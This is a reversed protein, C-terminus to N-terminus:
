INWKKKLYLEVQKVEKDNLKRNYYIFEGIYGNFGSKNQHQSLVTDFSTDGAFYSHRSGSGLSIIPKYLGIGADGHFAWGSQNKSKIETKFNGFNSISMDGSIDNSAEKVRFVFLSPNRYDDRFKTINSDDLVLDPYGPNTYTYGQHGMYNIVTYNKGEVDYPSSSYKLLNLYSVPQTYTWNYESATSGNYWKDILTTISLIAGHNGQPLNTRSWTTNYPDNNWTADNSYTTSNCQYVFFITREKDDINLGSWTASFVSDYGHPWTFIGDSYTLFPTPNEGFSLGPLGNITNRRFRPRTAMDVDDGGTPSFSSITIGRIKDIASHFQDGDQMNIGYRKNSSNFAAADVSYSIMTSVDSFDYWLYCNPIQNPKKSVFIM